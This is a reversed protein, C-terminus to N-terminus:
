SAGAEQEMKEIRKNSALVFAIADDIARSAHETSKNMQDIMAQLAKEDEGPQYGEAAVRMFQSTKMGAKKAKAVVRKKEVPTMLVPVRETAASM